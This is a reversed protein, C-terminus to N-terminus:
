IPPSPDAAFLSSALSFASARAKTCSIFSSFPPSCHAALFERGDLLYPRLFQPHLPEDVAIHMTQVGREGLAKHGGAVLPETRGALIHVIHAIGDHDILRCGRESAHELKQAFDESLTM